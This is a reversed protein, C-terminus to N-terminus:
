HLTLLNDDGDEQFINTKMRKMKNPPTKPRGLQGPRRRGGMGGGMAM